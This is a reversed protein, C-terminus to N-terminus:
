NLCKSARRFFHVVHMEYTFLLIENIHAIKVALKGLTEYVKFLHRVASNEIHFFNKFFHFFLRNLIIKEM